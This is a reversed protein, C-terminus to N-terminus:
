SGGEGAGGHICYVVVAQGRTYKVRPRTGRAHRTTGCNPCTPGPVDWDPPHGVFADPWSDIGGATMGFGVLACMVDSEDVPPRAAAAGQKDHASM